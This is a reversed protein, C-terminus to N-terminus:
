WANSNRFYGRSKVFSVDIQGLAGDFPRRGYEAIDYLEYGREAMFNIVDRTSPQRPMFEFLSTEIIFLETRGFLQTAGSLAALEFGQVDLKVLDPQFGWCEQLVDDITVIKTLRQRGSRLLEDEIPPLFSSGGLDQWITQVMQGNESGAGANVFYCGPRAALSQLSACMEQQPEILVFPLDVFVSLAMRTWDGINAGVDLLGRPAFGRAKVDELFPEVQGISRRISGPGTEPAFRGGSGRTSVVNAATAPLPGDNGHNFVPRQIKEDLFRLAREVMEERAFRGLCDDM